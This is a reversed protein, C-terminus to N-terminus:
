KKRQESSVPKTPPNKIAESVASTISSQRYGYLDSVTNGATGPSQAISTAAAIAALVNAATDKASM